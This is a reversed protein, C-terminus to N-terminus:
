KAAWNQSGKEAVLIPVDYLPPLLFPTWFVAGFSPGRKRLKPQVKKEDWTQMEQCHCRRKSLLKVRESSTKNEIVVALFSHHAFRNVLVTDLSRDPAVLLYLKLTCPRHKQKNTSKTNNGISRTAKHLHRAIGPSIAGTKPVM